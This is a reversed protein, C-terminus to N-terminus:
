LRLRLCTPNAAALTCPFHVVSRRAPLSAAKRPGTFALEEMDAACGNRYLFEGQRKSILIKVVSSCPYSSIRQFWFSVGGLDERIRTLGLFGHYLFSKRGNALRLVPFRVARIPFRAVRIPFRALCIGLGALGSKM